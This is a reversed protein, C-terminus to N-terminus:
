EERSYPAILEAQLREVLQSDAGIAKLEAAAGELIDLTRKRIYEPGIELENTDFFVANGDPDRTLWCSGDADADYQQATYREPRGELDPFESEFVKYAEFVDGGRLNVCNEDIFTMLALRFGGLGFIARQDPVESILEMGMKSYFRSSADLDKVRVCISAHWGKFSM